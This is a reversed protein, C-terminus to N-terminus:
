MQLKRLKDAKAATVIVVGISLFGGIVVSNVVGFLKAALGSEFAGIENSSGIFINNVASVRGKMADPTHIQILTGRIVVSIGDMVGALLLMAFSLWFHTSLGFVIMTVGFTGVAFFLKIGADKKIPNYALVIATFVAGLGMAAKLIGFEFAGVQLIDKAFVPLLAVAGGFLVAFLDLVLTSLIIQHNLVFKLGATIDTWISNQVDRVPTPKRNIISFLVFSVAILGADVLYSFHIGLPAILLGGIAPGATASIQWFTSNWTVANSFVAKDQIIQPWFSFIAPGLIGRSIGSIFIVGYISVLGNNLLIGDVDSSIFFLASSCGFLVLACWLIITKRNFSDALHGGFLAIGIAPIAEALGILGLSFPNNTIQYIQWGVIVAQIQISFNLLFRAGLFLTFEKNRLAAYADYKKLGAEM